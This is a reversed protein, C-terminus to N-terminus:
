AYTTEEVRNGAGARQRRALVVGTVALWLPTAFYTAFGAPGLMNFVGLVVTVIALWKPLAGTRLAGLGTAVLFVASAIAWPLWANSGLYSLTNLGTQDGQGAADIGAFMVMALLAAWGAYLIGGAYAVASYTSEGAEGSRLAQRVGAVFYCLTVALFASAVAGIMNRVEYDQMAVLDVDGAKDSFKPVFDHVLFLIAALVGSVPLFKEFTSLPM